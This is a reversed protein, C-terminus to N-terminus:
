CGILPLAPSIRALAAFRNFFDDEPGFVISPRLIIADPCVEKVAAEGAAKSRAYISPAKAGAGIASMHVLMRAGAQRAAEAVHRAGQDMVSNFTQKRAPLRIRVPNT